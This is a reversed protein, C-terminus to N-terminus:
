RNGMVVAVLPDIRRTAKVRDIAQSLEGKSMGEPVDIGLIRAQNLQAGSPSQRRWASKKGTLSKTGYGGREIAEDEAWSIAQELPLGKHETMGAHPGSGLRRAEWAVTPNLSTCWIVDYAGPEGGVSPVLFVYANGSSLFYYGADTRQWARDSDRALPDFDEIETPGYHYEVPLSGAGVEDIILEEMELLSLEDLEPLDRIDERDERASLDILSRLDHRRSVGTVDMVLAKRRESAPVTLDPRLVRGVMQQYLGASKTPRAIVVTEITPDDFGETLVACNCVVQTQGSRLRALVARRADRAMAGHVIESVIGQANLAGSFEEASAVTPAFLLGKRDASHEAYAKAVIEPALADTLATGLDGERYDGGSMRIKSLDFDPVEVRKGTVDLLYGRRIMFSIDKRFVAEQWVESLKAEDARVLTATFGAAKCTVKGGQYMGTGQCDWCQGNTEPDGSIGTGRCNECKSPLAGYHTLVNRYTTATAHHCEDVIILTVGKIMNRRKESRLSQVSAVIVRAYTENREAKVIGVTLHPAVQRLKAAAQLVLEDTHALIMVKGADPTNDIHDQAMHAFIVTKGAGTPLVTAARDIGSTFAERFKALCAEQYDRLKLM